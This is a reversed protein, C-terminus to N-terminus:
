LLSDSDSCLSFDWGLPSKFGLCCATKSLARSLKGKLFNSYPWYALKHFFNEGQFLGSYAYVSCVYTLVTSLPSCTKPAQEGRVIIYM